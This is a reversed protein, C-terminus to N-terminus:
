PMESEIGGRSIVEFSGQATGQPVTLLREQIFCKSSWLEVLNCSCLSHSPYPYTATDNSYTSQFFPNCRFHNKSETVPMFYPFSLAALHTNTIGRQPM